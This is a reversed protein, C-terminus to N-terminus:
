LSESYSGLLTKITEFILKKGYVNLERYKAVLNKEESTYVTKDLEFLNPSDDSDLGLLYDTSVDLFKALKIIFTATPENENNEWRGINRQSTCIAKAVETQTLNKEQRIEKLRM